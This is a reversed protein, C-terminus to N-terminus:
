QAADSHAMKNSPKQAVRAFRWLPGPVKEGGVYLTDCNRTLTIAEAQFMLPLPLVQPM